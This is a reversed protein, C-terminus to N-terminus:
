GGAPTMQLTNGTTAFRMTRVASLQGATNTSFQRVIRAEVSYVDGAQAEAAFTMNATGVQSAATFTENTNAPNSGINRPYAMADVLTATVTGRTRLLRTEMLTRDAGAVAAEVIKGRLNAVLLVNGADSASVAPLTAVVGWPSWQGESIPPTTTTSLQPTAVDVAAAPVAQRIFSRRVVGPDNHFFALELTASIQFDYTGSAAEWHWYYGLADSSDHALYLRLDGIKNAGRYVPAESFLVGNLATSSWDPTARLNGAFTVADERDTLEDYPSIETFSITQDTGRVLTAVVEGVMVGAVHNAAGLDFSPSFAHLPSTKNTGSSTVSFGNLSGDVIETSATGGSPPDALRAGPKGGIWTAYWIKDEDAASRAPPFKLDIRADVQAAPIRVYDADLEWPTLTQVTWGDGAPKDPVQFTYYVSGASAIVRTASALPLFVDFEDPAPDGIRLRLRALPAAYAVPVRFAIWQNEFRTGVSAQRVYSLGAIDASTYPTAKRATSVMPAGTAAADTWAGGDFSDLIDQVKTRTAGRLAGARFAPGIRADVAAQDLGLSPSGQALAAIAQAVRLPSWLRLGTATGTEAEARTAERLLDASRRDAFSALRHGAQAFTARRVDGVTGSGFWLRGGVSRAAYYQRSDVTVSVHHCGSPDAVASCAAPIADLSRWVALDISASGSIGALSITLSTADQPVDIGTDFVQGAVNGQNLSWSSRRTWPLPDSEADFDPGLLARVQAASAGVHRQRTEDWVLFGDASELPNGADADTSPEALETSPQWKPGGARAEPKLLALIQTQDLVDDLTDRIGGELEGETISDDEIEDTGVTLAEIGWTTGDAGLRVIKRADGSGTGAPLSHPSGASVLVWTPPSGACIYWGRAHAGADQTLLFPYRVTFQQAWPNLTTGCTPLTTGGKIMTSPVGVGPINPELDSVLGLGSANGALLVSAVLGALHKM